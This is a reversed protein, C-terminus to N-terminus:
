EESKIGLADYLYAIFKERDLLADYVVEPYHSKICKPAKNKVLSTDGEVEVLEGVHCFKFLAPPCHTVLDNNTRIVQFTKWREILKESVDYHAFFRPAEFGYGRLHEKRLDPRYYWVCEHCFGALAGGHSYGVITIDQWKYEPSDLLKETVKRIIIDEVTKWATLFGRHVKYPIQMDKYPRKGFLFNRVWDTISNSGEFFIILKDDEEVFAYNVSDGVQKYKVDYACMHFLKSLKM